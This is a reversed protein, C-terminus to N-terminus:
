AKDSCQWSNIVNSTELHEKSLSSPRLASARPQGYTKAQKQIIKVVTEVIRLHLKISHNLKKRSSWILSHRCIEMAATPAKDSPHSYTLLHGPAWMTAKQDIEAMEAKISM